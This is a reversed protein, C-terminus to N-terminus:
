KPQWFLPEMTVDGQFRVRELKTTRPLLIASCHTLSKGPEVKAGRRQPCPKFTGGLVVLTAPRHERGNADEISPRLLHPSLAFRGLNEFKADVYYPTARRQKRDLNFGKLDAIRGKRVDLVTAAVKTRDSRAGYDVFPAVAREGLALAGDAEAAARAAAGDTGTQTAAAPAPRNKRASDDSESGCAAATAALALAALATAIRNNM